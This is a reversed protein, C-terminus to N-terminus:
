LPLINFKAGTKEKLPLSAEQEEVLMLNAEDVCQNLPQRNM